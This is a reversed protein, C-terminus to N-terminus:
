AARPPLSQLGPERRYYSQRPGPKCLRGHRTLKLSPNPRVASASRPNVRTKHQGRQVDNIHLWCLSASPWCHLPTVTGLNKIENSLPEISWMGSSSQGATPSAECATTRSAFAAPTQIKPPPNSFCCAVITPVSPTALDPGNGSVLATTPPNETTSTADRSSASIHAAFIAVPQRHACSTRSIM